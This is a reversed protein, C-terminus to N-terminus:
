SALALERRDAAFATGVERLIGLMADVAPSRYGDRLTAASITRGPARTDLSRIAVDDRVALLALDPILSVGVGAAVFGQIALYDDSHFAIRPEFGAANCARVLIM